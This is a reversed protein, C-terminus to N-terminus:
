NCSRSLPGGGGRGRYRNHDCGSRSLGKGRDGDDCDYQFYHDSGRSMSGGHPYTCDRMKVM